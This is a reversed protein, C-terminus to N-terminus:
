EEIKGYTKTIYDEVKKVDENPVSISLRNGRVKCVFNYRKGIIVEQKIGAVLKVQAVDARGKFEFRDPKAYESFEGFDIKANVKSPDVMAAIENTKQKVRDEFDIRAGYSDFPLYQKQYLTQADALDKLFLNLMSKTGLQILESKEVNNLPRFINYESM